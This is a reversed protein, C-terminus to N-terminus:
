LHCHLIHFQRRTRLSFVPFFNRVRLFHLFDAPRVPVPYSDPATIIRKGGQQLIRIFSFSRGPIDPGCDKHKTSRNKRCTNAASDVAAAVAASFFSSGSSIADMAEAAAATVEAAAAAAAGSDVAAAM